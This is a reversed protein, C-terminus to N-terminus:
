DDEVRRNWAQLAQTVAEQSTICSYHKTSIQCETCQGWALGEDFYRIEGKEGCFPCNKIIIKTPLPEKSPLVVDISNQTAVDVTPEPSAQPKFQDQVCIDKSDDLMNSLWLDVVAITGLVLASILLGVLVYKIVERVTLIKTDPDGENESDHDIRLDEECQNEEKNM